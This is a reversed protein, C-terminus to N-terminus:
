VALSERISESRSPAAKTTTLFRRIIEIVEASREEHPNHGACEVIELRANPLRDALIADHESPSLFDHRGALVLTPMRIEALRDMVSWGTYLEKFGFVHAEPRMKIRFGSLVARPADLMGLHYFYAGLFKMVFRRVEAPTLQGTYFRRAARVAADSYGRKALIEAANHQIWRADGWTDMLLLQSVRSPFRLAYELAVMGGFSHGLVAWQEFGLKQRLADADATLNEWTM